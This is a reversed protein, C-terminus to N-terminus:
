KEKVTAKKKKKIIYTYACLGAFTLLCITTVAFGPWFGKPYYYLKIEHSGKLLPFALLSGGVPTIEVEKGDVVATWGEEYPISTYFLGDESVDITGEMSSGTLSETTMVDKSIKEYGKEFVDKNLLNVYVQASGSQGQELQSYVSIKDGKNFYGICAIYPRGMGYTSSQAADNQMVTVNDGGSIKAYMCYLGDEPAEYNWKVHPTISADTCSFSYNGYSTKTVPFKEYDYHGQSVVDLSTYVNENIGTALKFFENQQDFPNFQDENDNEVWQTLNNNVMFGMPIYHDNKLLKENGVAYAESLDYTNRYVGDRSIIYKLNMFVNTVPSGEAYTYRNGSKWGMMGFNEFFRTTDVNAMSNFMSLGNYDNLSGDNLTQTSTTEARWLETTNEELSNMYNIVQKTTEGGRPYDYTGTVTTTKVGIYATAGSEGIVVVALVILLVQKPVIRRTYLFLMTCVVLAVVATGIITYAEQTGIAFLIVLASGLAALLVDWCSSFDILMFARFAMVVLVFSILYSFRYPIMNTFHFGHWIYDLQRIICSLIMFFILCMDVIKEKLRIKKSTLFLIGLVISVTGCAINPLADAEKTAPSIFTIFNSLIQQIATLVGLLDNSKGINISFTSPFSSGSANTNQLGFFAPLLFFATIGIAILSFVGMRLLKTFFTKVNEWKVINYAIFILLVFICTFLGIYYNALLSLALTVVYLRFKNETLLKVAGLVVLPTICVTDLWITNWYYGMFFACFSFCCGFLVLSFDNKKFVSRLFIAMFMGACAVKIVVSFMLFERLWESPIFVSFFNLPSALYYSMLAFYNVGAGQTWSWFLSEGHKLKDQFDVLFPFYQHWLDTVLIQQDGFPSVKMLAFATTMLVFPVLVALIIFLNNSFFAKFRGQEKLTPSKAKKLAQTNPM